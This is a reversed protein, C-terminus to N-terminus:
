VDRGTERRLVWFTLAALHAVSLCGLWRHFVTLRADYSESDSAFVWFSSGVAMLLTMLAFWGVFRFLTTKKAPPTRTTETSSTRLPERQTTESMPDIDAFSERAGGIAALVTYTFATLAWIPLALFFLQLTETLWLTLAVAIAGFWSILAPWNTSHGSLGAWYQQLGVKPFIWHEVFVIAGVPLLLIGFLGVFELLRTFVFPFCAIMTTAVGAILTVLWRPWGPTVAQLALGARYLTPNSTAWGAVIVALAGSIGLSQYAVAGADLQDLPTRILL